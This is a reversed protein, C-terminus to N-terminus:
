VLSSARMPSRTSGQGGPEYISGTFRAQAV